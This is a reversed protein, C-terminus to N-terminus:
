TFLKTQNTPEYNIEYRKSEGKPYPLVKYRLNNMMDKRQRRTGIFYIYRHKRSRDRYPLDSYIVGKKETVTKSHKNPNDPDFKETRKASLGTYLWNTAQYIYGIHGQETDAYSVLCMPKPLLKLSTSVFYSLVNKELSGLVCLRNLEYVINASQEGLVGICLSNSPPKGFTIIGLMNDFYLGFSYSISPIRKAYHVKLLWEHTEKSNISEVTYGIM